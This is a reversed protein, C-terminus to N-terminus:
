VTKIQLRLNDVSFIDKKTMVSFCFFVIRSDLNRWKEYKFAYKFEVSSIKHISSMQKSFKKM